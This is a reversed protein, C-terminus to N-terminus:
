SMGRSPAPFRHQSHPHSHARPLCTIASLPWYQSPHVVWCRVLFAVRQSITQARCSYADGSCSWATKHRRVIPWPHATYGVFSLLSLFFVPLLRPPPPPPPLVHSRNLQSIIDTRTLNPTPSHLYYPPTFSISIDILLKFLNHTILMDHM